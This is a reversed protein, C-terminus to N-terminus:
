LKLPQFLETEINPCKQGCGNLRHLNMIATTYEPGANLKSYSGCVSRSVQQRAARSNAPLWGGAARTPNASLAASSYEEARNSRASRRNKPSTKVAPVQGFRWRKQRKTEMCARPMVGRSRRSGPSFDGRCRRRLYILFIGPYLAISQGPGECYRRGKLSRSDETTSGVRLQSGEPRAAWRAAEASGMSKAKATGKATGKKYYKRGKLSRSDGTTNGVRQQSGEPRTAWRATEANRASEMSTKDRFTKVM